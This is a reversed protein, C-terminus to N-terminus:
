FVIVSSKLNSAVMPMLERATRSAELMSKELSVLVQLKIEDNTKSYFNINNELLFNLIYNRIEEETLYYRNNSFELKIKLNEQCFSFCQILLVFLFIIKKM